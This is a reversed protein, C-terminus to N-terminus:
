VHSHGWVASEEKVHTDKVHSNRNVFVLSGIHNKLPNNIMMKVSVTCEGQFCYRGSIVFDNSNCEQDVTCETGLSKTPSCQQEGSCTYPVVCVDRSAACSSGRKQCAARFCTDSSRMGGGGGGTGATGRANGPVSSSSAMQSLADYGFFLDPEEIDLWSQGAVCQCFVTCSWLFLVGVFLAKMECDLNAFLFVLWRNGEHSICM